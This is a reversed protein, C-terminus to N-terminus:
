ESDNDSYSESEKELRLDLVAQVLDGVKELFPPVFMGLFVSYGTFPNGGAASRPRSIRFGACDGGPYEPRNKKHRFQGASFTRKQGV